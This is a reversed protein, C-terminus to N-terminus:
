PAEDQPIVKVSSDMPWLIKGPMKGPLKGPLKSLKSPATSPPAVVAAAPAAPPQIITTSGALELAKQKEIQSETQNGTKELIISTLLHAEASRPEITLARRADTLAADLDGHRAELRALRLRAPMYKSDIQTCDEYSRKALQYSGAEEATKALEFCAYVEMPAQQQAHSRFIQQAERLQSLALPFNGSLRGNVGADYLSYAHTLSDFDPRPGRDAAEEEDEKEPSNRDDIRHQVPAEHKTLKQQSANESKEGERHHHIGVIKEPEQHTRLRERGHSLHHTSRGHHSVVEPPAEEVHHRRRHHGNEQVAVTSHTAAASHTRHRSTSVSPASATATATATTHHHRRSTQANAQETLLGCLFCSLCLLRFAFLVTMQCREYHVLPQKAM